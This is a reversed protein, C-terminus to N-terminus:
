VVMSQDILKVVGDSCDIFSIFGGIQNNQWTFFDYKLTDMIKAIPSKSSTSKLEYITSGNLGYYNQFNVVFTYVTFPLYILPPLQIFDNGPINTNNNIYEVIYNFNDEELPVMSSLNWTMNYLGRNGDNFIKLTSIITEECLSIKKYPGKLQLAPPFPDSNIRIQSREPPFYKFTKTSSCQQRKITGSLLGIVDGLDFNPIQQPIIEIAREYVHCAVDGGM